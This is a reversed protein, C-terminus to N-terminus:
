NLIEGNERMVTLAGKFYNLATEYDNASLYDLVKLCRGGHPSKCVPVFKGGRFEISYNRVDQKMTMKKKEM